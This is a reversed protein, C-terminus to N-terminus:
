KEGLLRAIKEHKQDLALDRPTMGTADKLTPDAKAGLLAEVVQAHGRFAAKHLPTQGDADRANPDAGAQILLKVVEANGSWAAKHLPTSRGAAAQPRAGAQLLVQVTRPKGEWAAVHLPTSGSRDVANPKAGAELLLQVLQAALKDDEPTAAAPTRPRNPLPPGSIGPGIPLRRIPGAFDPGPAIGGSSSRRAAAALHLLTMGGEYQRHVDAGAGLLLKVVELHGGQIARYLATHGQPDTQNVPSGRKLALKVVSSMGRAAAWLLIPEGEPSRPPLKGVHKVLLDIVAPNGTQLALELANKGQPDKVRPDAGAELLLAVIKEPQLRRPNWSSISQLVLHLPTRRQFLLNPDAGAKLLLKVSEAQLNQCALFLPPFGGRQPKANPDAGAKLLLALVQPHSTAFHIPQNGHRDRAQPDAGAELMAQVVKVMGRSVAMHLPTQGFRNAARHDSHKLLYIVLPERPRYLLAYLLANNGQRDLRQTSAGAQILLQVASLNDNQIALGLAVQGYRDRHNVNAKRRLLEKLVEQHRDRTFVRQLPNRQDRYMVAYFLPTRGNRDTAELLQPNQDLLKRVRALDGQQVARHIEQQAWAVSAVLLWVGSVLLTRFM